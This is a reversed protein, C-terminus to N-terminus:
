FPLDSDKPVSMYQTVSPPTTMEELLAELDMKYSGANYLATIREHRDPYNARFWPGSLSPYEHWWRHHTPCMSLSNDLEWRTCPHRRGIVHSWQVNKSPCLVCTHHDREFCRERAVKDLKLFVSRRQRAKKSSRIM